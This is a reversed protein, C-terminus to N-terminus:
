QSVSTPRWGCSLAVFQWQEHYACAEPRWGWPIAEDTRVVEMQCVDDLIEYFESGPPESLCTRLSFRGVNSKSRTAKYSRVVARSILQRVHSIAYRVGSLREFLPTDTKKM